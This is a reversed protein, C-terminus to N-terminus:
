EVILFDAVEFEAVAADGLNNDGRHEVIPMQDTRHNIADLKEVDHCVGGLSDDGLDAIDLAACPDLAFEVGAGYRISHPVCQGPLQSRFDEGVRLRALVEHHRDVANRVANEVSREIFTRGQGDGVLDAEVRRGTGELGLGAETRVEEAEGTNGGEAGQGQTEEKRM